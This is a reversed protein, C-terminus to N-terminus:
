RRAKRWEWPAQFESAWIGKRAADAAQQENAYAGDSYKAYDLAWGNRVMWAEIDQGGVTCRAITRRYRDEGQPTCTVPRRAIFEDLALASSQGCRWPRGERHCIQASEPADIGHLRIRQGHIDLTDGDIVSAIGTILAAAILQM